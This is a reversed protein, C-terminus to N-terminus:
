TVPVREPNNTPIVVKDSEISGDRLRVVRKAYSAIDEEHTILVVTNGASQIKPAILIRM